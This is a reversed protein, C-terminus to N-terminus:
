HFSFQSVGQEAQAEYQTQQAVNFVIQIDEFEIPIDEIVTLPSENPDKSLLQEIENDTM